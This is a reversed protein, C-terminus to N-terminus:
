ADPAHNWPKGAYSERHSKGNFPGVYIIEQGNRVCVELGHEEEWSCSGLVQVFRDKSLLEPVQISHLKAFAWVRDESAIHPGCDEVAAETALYYSFAAKRLRAEISPWAALFEALVAREQRERILPSNSSIRVEVPTLLNHLDFEAVLGTEREEFEIDDLNM